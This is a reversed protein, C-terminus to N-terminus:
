HRWLESVLAAFVRREGWFRTRGHGVRLNDVLLLDGRRWSFTVSTERLNRRVDDLVELPLAAGDAFRCDLVKSADLGRAGKQAHSDDAKASAEFAAFEESMSGCYVPAQNFWVREGTKPHKRFAPARAVLRLSGDELWEYENAQTAAIREVERRDRTGFMDPWTHTLIPTPELPVIQVYRLDRRELEALATEPIGRLVGRLDVLPTQGGETAPTACGFVIAEPYNPAYSMETHLPIPFDSRTDTATFVQKGVLTRPSMGRPYDMLPLDAARTFDEIDSPETAGFGRFLLAGRELLASRIAASHEGAFSGIKAGAPAEVLGPLLRGPEIEGVSM